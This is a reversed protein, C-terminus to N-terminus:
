RSGGGKEKLPDSVCGAFGDWFQDSRNLAHELERMKSAAAEPAQRYAKVVDWALDYVERLRMMRLAFNAKEQRFDKKQRRLDTAEHNPKGSM